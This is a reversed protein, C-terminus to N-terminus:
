QNNRDNQGEQAAAREREAVRQWYAMNYARVKDKNRNRWAKMYERQAALAAEHTAESYM